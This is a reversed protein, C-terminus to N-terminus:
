VMRCYYKFRRYCWCYVNILKAISERAKEIDASVEQSIKFDGRNVNCRKQEYYDNMKDLVRQHTQTSAASDLYVLEPNNNLTPFEEKVNDFFM